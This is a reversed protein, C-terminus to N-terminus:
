ASAEEIKRFLPSPAPLPTGEPLPTGLDALGRDAEPVGLQDLLAAMGDPVSPQLLTAYARLATHLHRLVVAMRAPDTKRLAWPQQQTIYGNAERVSAFAAELALHFHQDDLHRGITAPLAPM